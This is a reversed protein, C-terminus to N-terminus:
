CGHAKLIHLPWATDHLIQAQSHFKASTEGPHPVYCFGLDGTLLILVVGNNLPM